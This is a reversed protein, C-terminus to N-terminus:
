SVIPELRTGPQSSRSAKRKSARGQSKEERAREEAIELLYTVENM